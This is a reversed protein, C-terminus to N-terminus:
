GEQKGIEPNPNRLATLYTTRPKTNLEALLSYDRRDAKIKSVRSNPDNIDGFVIAETPCVAQCATVIEGDRVKRGEIESQIKAGQIRQVCYTCKEMVGRSRISVEPNRMLQYTPKEWDQYLFFNFRRVKYPCNNQCYKTGVCRNYVMDNLGEASHVTAHVPCVPECPANECHMCPVPMFNTAEPKNADEGKFYTDVRIWHMERSRVVQEKGVVPINNESQCAITCANCGICNNLDIAMGWAYDLGNGQNKYDFLEPHYLTDDPAPDHSEGAPTGKLYEDLTQSRLIDRDEKSFDRDELLFHLQTVAVLAQGSGKEVQVGSASWPSDSTRIEYANFGHGNGTNGAHTRGYGLHITIVGDPQGPTIWTPVMDTFTRGQHTIKLTDVYIDGGKKGITKTIGLQKATNPSVLAANDWTLKSLPKPLEQLWGNNAFRGDYITPDTRFVIEFEGAQSGISAPAAPTGGANQAAVGAANVSVSKGPLATNPIFGDHVCKRWWIEFDNSPAAVSTPTSSGAPQAQSRASQQNSIASQKNSVASQQSRWYDRIIEYPKKDYQPTFVALLEHASKSQYLPEILPQVITVTGDYARTDSWTELYHSEPIHWHCLDSTEDKYQSLHIRLKPKFMREQNLKLDAPTNYVPNGGVILLMEVHGDDIDKLLEQLSQRQDVSNAEVSDMYFVTKGVNGLAGNMAHALAHVPPPAERGAIVISRAQHLKLDDVLAEIVDPLMPQSRVLDEPPNAGIPEKSIPAQRQGAYITPSSVRNAIMQAITTLESPRVAWHHDAAAGTTTPTTEIVYLRNMLSSQDLIQDYIATLRRRREAFDRAYKLMGPHASLFDADLSLIRDAKSFDYTTNVPQGFALVAGARANDNNVPEYQHWKAQPFETLIGKLQAALTPSTITETLFRIGAGQKPRQEDLATRLEGVFTSWTRSEERFLPIQSRDPDYLSLVSAQSFIDTASSGRDNADGNRSNPHDPNGELKTPRGENSRALLPTAIGGLSSATAFFLAKGPVSDESQKVNPVIKEAPQFACGSLGALAMSAGMLKLFTRREVPDHWEEAHQPYEREVFERFEPSDALEELSRWYSKGSMGGGQEALVRERMLKFNIHRDESM